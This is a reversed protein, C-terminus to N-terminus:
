DNIGGARRDPQATEVHAPPHWRRVLIGRIDLAHTRVAHPVHEAVVGRAFVVGRLHAFDNTLYVAKGAAAERNNGHEIHELARIRRRKPFLEIRPARRFHIGFKKGKPSVEHRLELILGADKGPFRDVLRVIHCRPYRCRPIAVQDRTQALEVGVARNDHLARVVRMRFVQRRFELHIIRVDNVGKM